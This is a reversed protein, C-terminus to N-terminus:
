RATPTAGHPRLPKLAGVQGAEVNWTKAVLDPGVRSTDSARVSRGHSSADETTTSGDVSSEPPLGVRSVKVVVERLPPLRGVHLFGNTTDKLLNRPRVPRGAIALEVKRLTVISEATSELLRAPRAHSGVVLRALLM